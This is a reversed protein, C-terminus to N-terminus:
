AAKKQPRERFAPVRASFGNRYRLDVQEVKTGARALAGVTRPYIDVFRAVAADPDDRGLEVDLGGSDNDVHM